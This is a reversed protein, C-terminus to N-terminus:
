AITAGVNVVERWVGATCNGIGGNWQLISVENAADFAVSALQTSGDQQLGSTVTVKYDKTTLTGLGCFGKLLGERDGDDLTETSDAAMTYGGAVFTCGGVMADVAVADQPSILEQLGSEEGDQLYCLCLPDGKTIYLALDCDGPDTGASVDITITDATPATVVDYRGTEVLEGSSADGGTSDDAGGLITAVFDTPDIDDDGYGCATGIGTLTITYTSGSLAGTASGDVSKETIDGGDALAKTQLALATGKGQFGEFTFRGADASNVSCTLLTSNISTAMGIACIACGGPLYLEVIQPLDRAPYNQTLVGAFARNNSTSPKAITRMGRGGFSDTVAQSTEATYYGLDFCMGHGKKLAATGRYIFLGKLMNAQKEYNILNRIM